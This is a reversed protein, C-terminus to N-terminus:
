RLLCLGPYYAPRHSAKVLRAAHEAIKAAIYLTSFNQEQAARNRASRPSGRDINLYAHVINHQSVRGETPLRRVQNKRSTCRSNVMAVVVGLVAAVM